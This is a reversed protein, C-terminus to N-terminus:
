RDKWWYSQPTLLSSPNETAPPAVTVTVRPLENNAQPMSAAVAQHDGMSQHSAGTDDSTAASAATAFLAFALTPLSLRYINM